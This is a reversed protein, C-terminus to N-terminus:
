ETTSKIYIKCFGTLWWFTSLVLPKKKLSKKIVLIGLIICLAFGILATVKRSIIM